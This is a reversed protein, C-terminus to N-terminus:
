QWCSRTTSNVTRNETISGGYRGNPMEKPFISKLQSKYSYLIFTSQTMRNLWVSFHIHDTFQVSIFLIWPVLLQIMHIWTMYRLWCRDNHNNGSKFWHRIITLLVILKSYRWVHKTWSAKQWGSLGLCHGNVRQHEDYGSRHAARKSEHKRHGRRGIGNDIGISVQPYWVHYARSPHWCYSACSDFCYM